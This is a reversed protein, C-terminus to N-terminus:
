AGDPVDAGRTTALPGASLRTEASNVAREDDNLPRLIMGQAGFEMAYGSGDLAPLTGARKLAEEVERVQAAGLKAEKPM